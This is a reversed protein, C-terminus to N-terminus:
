QVPTMRRRAHAIILRLKEISSVEFPYVRCRPFAHGLITDSEDEPLREVESLPCLDVLLALATRELHEMPVIGVGRVEMLGALSPPPSAHVHHAQAVLDVQDDAVLRAGAQRILRLALDSKGCGSPGRLLVGAGDVDVCTGHVLM